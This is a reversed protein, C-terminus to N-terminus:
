MSDLLEFGILIINFLHRVRLLRNCLRHGVNVLLLQLFLLLVGVKRALHKFEESSKILGVKCDPKRFPNLCTVIHRSMKSRFQDKIRKATESSTDAAATTTEKKGKKSQFGPDAILV